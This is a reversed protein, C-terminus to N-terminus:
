SLDKVLNSKNKRIMNRAFITFSDGNLVGLAWNENKSEKYVEDRIEWARESDLGALGIAVYLEVNNHDQEKMSLIKERIKWARESDLGALSYAVGLRGERSKMLEDRMEWSKESDLGALGMGVFESTNLKHRDVKKDLLDRRMKWARESDLGALGRGLDIYFGKEFLEDRMQWARESDLGKLGLAFMSGDGGNKYIHERMKWARESDLGALGAALYDLNKGKQIYEERLKWARESDLEGLTCVTAADLGEALIDERIKWAEESDMGSIGSLIFTKDVGENLGKRMEQIVEDESIYKDFSTEETKKDAESKGEIENIKSKKEAVESLLGDREKNMESAEEHFNELLIKKPKEPLKSFQEQDEKKSFDFQEKM